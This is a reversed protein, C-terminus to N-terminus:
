QFIEVFIEDLYRLIPSPRDPTAWAVFDTIAAARADAAESARQDIQVLHEVRRRFESRSVALLPM